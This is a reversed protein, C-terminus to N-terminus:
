FPRRYQSASNFTSPLAHGGPQGGQWKASGGGRFGPGPREAHRERNKQSAAHVASLDSVSIEWLNEAHAKPIILTHGAQVPNIDMFAFVLDDEYIKVSPIEGAVIKCFICDQM